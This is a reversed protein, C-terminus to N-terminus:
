TLICHFFPTTEFVQKAHCFNCTSQFNDNVSGSFLVVPCLLICCNNLITQIKWKKLNKKHCQNITFFIHVVSVNFTMWNFHTANQHNFCSNWCKLLNPFIINNFWHLICFMPLFYTHVCVFLWAADFAISLIYLVYMYSCICNPKSLPSKSILSQCLQHERAPQSSVTCRHISLWCNIQM